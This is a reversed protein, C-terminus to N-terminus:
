DSQSAYYLSFFVYWCRTYWRTRQLSDDIDPSAVMLQLGKITQVERIRRADPKNYGPFGSCSDEADRSVPYACVLTLSACNYVRDMQRLQDSKQDGDDQVICLADIWLYRMKLEKACSIADQITGPLNIMNDLLAERAFLAARTEKLLTLYTKKPWCYSLAAYESGEPMHCICMNLLDIALLDVPQPTPITGDADGELTDCLSGHEIKCKEVWQLAQRMDFTDYNPVRALFSSPLGLLHASDALLQIFASTRSGNLNTLVHMYYTSTSEVGHDTRTTGCLVSSVTIVASESGPFLDTAAYVLHCFACSAKKERLEARLGLEQSKYHLGGVGNKKAPEGEVPPQFYTAFDIARCVNCLESAVPSLGTM